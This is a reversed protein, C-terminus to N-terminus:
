KWFIMSQSYAEIEIRRKLGPRQSPKAKRPLLVNM